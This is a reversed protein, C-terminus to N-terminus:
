STLDARVDAGTSLVMMILTRLADDSLGAAPFNYRLMVDGETASREVLVVTGLMTAGAHAAVRDRIENDLVLDWALPQTLSLMELGEAIAVLRLSAVTGAHTVTVADDDAVATMVSGLVVALQDLQM